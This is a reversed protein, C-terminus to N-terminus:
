GDCIYSDSILLSCVYVIAAILTSKIKLKRRFKPNVIPKKETDAPSYIFMYIISFLGFITKFGMPIIFEKAIYCSGIFVISSAIFCSLSGPMHMGYSYRKVLSYIIMLIFLEKFLGLFYAISFIVVSKTVLIYIISLGYKLEQLREDSYNPNQKKIINISNDVVYDRLIM